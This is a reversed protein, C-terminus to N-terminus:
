NCSINRKFVMFTNSFWLYDAQGRAENQFTLSWDDQVYGMTKIKGTIEENTKENVHHYGGQGPVAWSLIIGCKNHKDLLNLFSETAYAPIHEGCELSMVWDVRVDITDFLPNTM